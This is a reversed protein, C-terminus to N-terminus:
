RTLWDHGYENEAESLNWGGKILYDAGFHNKAFEALYPQLPIRRLLQAAETTKGADKLKISEVAMDLKEDLTLMQAQPM